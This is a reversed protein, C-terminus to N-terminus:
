QLTYNKKVKRSQSNLLLFDKTTASPKHTWIQQVPYKRLILAPKPEIYLYTFKISLNEQSIYKFIPPAHHPGHIQNRHYFEWCFFHVIFKLKRELLEQSVEPSFQTFCKKTVPVSFWIFYVTSRKLVKSRTSVTREAPTIFLNSKIVRNLM